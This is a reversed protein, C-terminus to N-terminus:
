YIEDSGGSFFFGVSNRMDYLPAAPKSFVIYNKKENIAVFNIM